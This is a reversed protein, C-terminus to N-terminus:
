RMVFYCFSLSSMYHHGAILSNIIAGRALYFGVLHFLEFFTAIKALFYKITLATIGMM